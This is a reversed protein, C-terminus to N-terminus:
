FVEWVIKEKRIRAISDRSAKKKFVVLPITTNAVATIFERWGTPKSTSQRTGVILEKMLEMINSGHITDGHALVIEQNSNFKMGRLNLETLVASVQSQYEPAFFLNIEASRESPRAHFSSDQLRHNIQKLTNQKVQSVCKTRGKISFQKLKKYEEESLIVMRRSYKM